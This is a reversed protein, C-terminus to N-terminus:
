SLTYSLHNIRDAAMSILFLVNIHKRERFDEFHNEIKSKLEKYLKKMTYLNEISHNYYENYFVEYFQELQKVIAAIKEFDKSSGIEKILESIVVLDDAIQELELVLNYTLHSKAADGIGVKNLMRECFFCFKDAMNELSIVEDLKAIKNQEIADGLEKIMTLVILFNRRLIKDFDAEMSQAVMEVVIKKETQNIIEFGLLQELITLLKPMVKIDKIEIELRDCGLRYPVHILRNMFKDVSDLTVKATFGKQQKKTTIVINGGQEILEIEDGANLNYKKIWISPLSTVLSATGLKIIKRKM